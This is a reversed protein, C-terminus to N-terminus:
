HTVFYQFLLPDSVTEGEKWGNRIQLLYPLLFENVFEYAVMKPMLDLAHQKRYLKTDYIMECLNEIEHQKKAEDAPDEPM